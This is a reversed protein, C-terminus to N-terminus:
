NLYDTGSVVVTQKNKLRGESADNFYKARISDIRPKIASKKLRSDVGREGSQITLFLKTTDILTQEAGAIALQWPNRNFLLLYIGKAKGSFVLECQVLGPNGDGKLITCKLVNEGREFLSGTVPHKTDLACKREWALFSNNAGLTYNEECWSKITKHFDINMVSKRATSYLTYNRDFGNKDVALNKAELKVVLSSLRVQLEHDVYADMVSFLDIESPFVQSVKLAFSGDREITLHFKQGSATVAQGEDREGDREGDWESIRVDEPHVSRQSGEVLSAGARTLALQSCLALSLLTKILLSEARTDWSLEQGLEQRLWQTERRDKELLRDAGLKEV